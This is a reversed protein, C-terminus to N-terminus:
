EDIPDGDLVCVDADVGRRKALTQAAHAIAGADRRKEAQVEPLWTVHRGNLHPQMALVHRAHVTAGLQKALGCAVSLAANSPKSGDVAVVINRFLGTMPLAHTGAIFAEHIAHSDALLPGECSVTTRTNAHIMMVGNTSAM